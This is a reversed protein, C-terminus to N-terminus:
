GIDEHNAGYKLLLAVIDQRGKQIAHWMPSKGQTDKEDVNVGNQLLYEIVETSPNGAWLAVILISPKGYNVKAGNEIFKKMMTLNGQRVVFALPNQTPWNHGFDLQVKKELLLPILNTMPKQLVQVIVRSGDVGANVNASSEILFKAIPENNFQIALQLPTMDNIKKDPEVLAGHSVLKKVLELNGIMVAVSILPRGSQDVSNASVAKNVLYFEAADLLTQGSFVQKEIIESLPKLNSQEISAKNNILFQSFSMDGSTFARYLCTQSNQDKNNINAGRGLWKQVLTQNRQDVALNLQENLYKIDTRFDNLVAIIVPKNAAFDLACKGQADVTHVNAGKNCFKRILAASNADGATAEVIASFVTRQNELVRNSDVNKELFKDVMTTRQPEPLNFAQFLPSSAKTNGGNVDAGKDLLLDAIPCMAVGKNLALALLNPQGPRGSNPNANAFLLQTAIYNNNMSIAIELPSYNDSQRRIELNAKAQILMDAINSYEKEIAVILPAKGNADPANLNVGHSVLFQVVVPSNEIIAQHLLDEGKVHNACLTEQLNGTKLRMELTQINPQAAVTAEAAFRRFTAKPSGGQCNVIKQEAELSAISPPLTVDVDLNEIKQVTM